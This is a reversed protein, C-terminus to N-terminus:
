IFSFYHWITWWYITFLSCRSPERSMVLPGKMHMCFRSESTYVPEKVYFDNTYPTIEFKRWTGLPHLCKAEKEFFFVWKFVQCYLMWFYNREYRLCYSIFITKKKKKAYFLKGKNRNSRAYRRAHKASTTPWQNCIGCVCPTSTQMHLSGHSSRLVLSCVQPASSLSFVWGLLWVFGFETYLVGLWGSRM